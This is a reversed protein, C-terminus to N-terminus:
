PQVADPFVTAIKGNTRIVGVRVGRYTGYMPIGDPVASNKKLGTVYSGAKRVETPGWNEPFWAQNEGSRKLKNKHAPVNGVRVGNPYEKTVDFEIGERRLVEINEQGLGGSRFRSIRGRSDRTFSGELSHEMAKEGVHRNSGYTHEYLNSRGSGM